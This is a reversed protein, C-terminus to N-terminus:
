RIGFLCSEHVMIWYKDMLVGLCWLKGNVYIDVLWPWHLEEVAEHLKNNVLMTKNKKKEIVKNLRDLIEDKKSMIEISGNPKAYVNPKHHTVIDPTLKSLDSITKIEVGASLTKIPETKNWKPLCEIYLGLCESSEMRLKRMYKDYSPLMVNQQLISDDYFRPRSDFPFQNRLGLMDPDIPVIQDNSSLQTTNFYKYGKFGLLGCIEEATKASYMHFNTETSCVVKWNGNTNRSFIGM